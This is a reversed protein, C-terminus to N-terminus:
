LPQRVEGGTNEYCRGTHRARTYPVAPQTKPPFTIRAGAFSGCLRVRGANVLSTVIAVIEEDSAAFRSVTQVLDLLTTNRPVSM